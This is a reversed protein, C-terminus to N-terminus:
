TPIAPEFFYEGEKYAEKNKHMTMTLSGSLLVRMESGRHTHEGAFGGRAIKGHVLVMKNKGDALMIERELVIRTAAGKMAQGGDATAHSTPLVEFVVMKVAGEGQNKYRRDDQPTAHMGQGATYSKSQGNEKSALAGSFMYAMGQGDHTLEEFSFGSPITIETARMRYEGATLNDLPEEKLIQLTVGHSEVAEIRQVSSLVCIWIFAIPLLLVRVAKNLMLQHEIRKLTISM